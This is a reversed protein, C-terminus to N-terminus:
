MILIKVNMMMIDYYLLLLLLKLLIFYHRTIRHIQEKYKKHKILAAGWKQRRNVRSFTVVVEVEAATDGCCDDLLHRRKFFSRLDASINSEIGRVRIVVSDPESKWRLKPIKVEQLEFELPLNRPLEEINWRYSWNGTYLFNFAKCQYKTRKVPAFAEARYRPKQNQVLWEFQM